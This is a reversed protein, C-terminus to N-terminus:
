GAALKRGPNLIGRPDFVDKVLRQLERVRPAIEGPVSALKATGIGHEGAITGGLRQAALLLEHAAEHAAATEAPDHPDFVVTPHLNGDGVHGALSIGVGYRERLRATLEAIAPLASRPVALDGHTAEGRVALLGPSLARRAAFLLDVQEPSDARTISLAGAARFADIFGDVDADAGDREDTVALLWAGADAPLGLDPRVVRIGSLAVDDLFELTSPLRRGSAIADAARFADAASRFIAVAGREPGPAPRLALTAETVVALTGEAGVILSTLDLGAVGKVTETRTRVIEGDALVVELSLVADRTVGYKVCRMGGANTAITGGITARDASAPDPAYFLGADLAARHLDAVIVGPQVVAVRDVPDIRVIRDLGSLDLLISGDLANAAGVLGSRAGQAVVPTGSESALALVASVEATSAPRVLVAPRGPTSRSADAAHAALVDAEDTVTGAPVASRLADVLTV